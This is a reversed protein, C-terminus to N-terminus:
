GADSSEADAFGLLGVGVSRQKEAPVERRM